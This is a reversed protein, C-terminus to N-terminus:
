KLSVTLVALITDEETLEYPLKPNLWVGSLADSDTNSFAHARSFAAM